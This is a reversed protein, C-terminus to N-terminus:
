YETRLTCHFVYPTMVFIKQEGEHGEYEERYFFCISDRLVCLFAFIFYKYRM